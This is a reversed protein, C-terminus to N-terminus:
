EVYRKLKTSLNQVAQKSCYLDQEQTLYKDIIALQVHQSFEEDTFGTIDKRKFCSPQSDVSNMFAQHKIVMESPIHVIPPTVGPSPTIVPPKPTIVPPRPTVPPPIPEGPPAAGWVLPPSEAIIPM